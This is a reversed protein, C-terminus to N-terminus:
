KKKMKSSTKNSKNNIIVTEKFEGYNTFMETTYVPACAHSVTTQYFVHYDM